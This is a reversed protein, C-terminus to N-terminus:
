EHGNLAEITISTILDSVARVDIGYPLPSDERAQRTEDFLSQAYVKVHELPWEGRKISRIQDADTTRYVEMEGTKLFGVCMKLLRVLHAANKTDYGHRVVLGRRKEGMYAAHYKARLYRLRDAWANAEAPTTGGYPMPVPRKDMVDQLHWGCAELKTQLSDIEEQIAPSYSVMRELQGNAYGAFAAHAGRTAFLSRHEALRVWAPRQVLYDEPRLWLTGLVNPNSKLLLRSFKHFSYAVVDLEDWQANWGDFADLGVVYQPPPIIVAMLDVDDIASPDTPPVYTGHSHSGAMCLMVCSSAFTFDHTDDFRAAIRAYLDSMLIGSVLFGRLIQAHCREIM